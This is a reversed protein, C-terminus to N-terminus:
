GPEGHSARSLRRGLVAEEQELQVRGLVAREVLLEARVPADRHQAVVAEFAHM